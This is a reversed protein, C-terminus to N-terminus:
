VYPWRASIVKSLTTEIERLDQPTLHIDTAGLNENLHDMNRTGPIPVIWPKQAMLWVLALQSPTASKKDAFRKLLEVEPMNAAM